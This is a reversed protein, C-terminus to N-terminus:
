QPPARESNTYMLHITKCIEIYENESLRQGMDFILQIRSDDTVNQVGSRLEFTRIIRVITQREVFNTDCHFLFHALTEQSDKCASCLARDQRTRMDGWSAKTAVSKCARILRPTKNCIKRWFVPKCNNTIDM